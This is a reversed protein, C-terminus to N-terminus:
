RKQMRQKLGRIEQRPPVYMPTRLKVKSKVATRAMFVIGNCLTLAARCIQLAKVTTQEFAFQLHHEIFVSRMIESPPNLHHGRAMTSPRTLSKSLLTPPV